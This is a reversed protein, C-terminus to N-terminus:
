RCARRNLTRCRIWCLSVANRRARPAVMTARVIKARLAQPFEPDGEAEEPELVVWGFDDVDEDAGDFGVDDVDEDLV